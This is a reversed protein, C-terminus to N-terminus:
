GAPRPPAARARPRPGVLYPLLRAARVPTPAAARRRLCHVAIAQFAAFWQWNYRYLNHGGWGMFLLLLVGIGAGRAVHYPFDRPWDPHKRYLRRTELWNWLFCALLAAFAVVGCTGMESLVQGYVNHPHFGLGSALPFAGPGVGVLPSGGWLKLGTLFGTLRGEASVQANQPGYRPDVLTLLRNQLEGPLAVTAVAGVLLVLPLVRLRHRSLAACLLGFLCWGVFGARSGTLLICLSAAGTYGLLALRRGGAPSAMWFPLTFPLTLLLTTAFANPDRFTVDVGIMRRVGMRWEYRGNAYELLSHGMYLSVAVLYLTVVRRLGREDHVSTVLLVYFVLMKFYTEVVDNCQDRYPSALWCATLALTFAALAAHIRNGLPRKGPWVLWYVAMLIVYVREIQLDGLAPYYEFPRHVFLWMYGGLLWHM